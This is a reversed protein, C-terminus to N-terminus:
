ENLGAKKKLNDVEQQIQEPSLGKDRLYRAHNNMFIAENPFAKGKLVRYSFTIELMRQYLPEAEVLKGEARLLTALDNLSTAVEPDDQGLRAEDVKLLERYLPEAESLKGQARLLNALDRSLEFHSMEPKTKEIEISERVFSEAEALRGQGRMVNLLGRRWKKLGPHDRGLRAEELELGRRCLLEVEAWEGQVRLLNALNDIGETIYSHGKELKVEDIELARRYLSLAEAIRGQSELSNALNSLSTALSPSNPGLEREKIAIVQRLLEVAETHRALKYLVIAVRHQAEAWALPQDDRSLLAASRKRAELVAFHDIRPLQPDELFIRPQEERALGTAGASQGPANGAVLLLLIAAGASFSHLWHRMEHSLFCVVPLFDISSFQSTSLGM